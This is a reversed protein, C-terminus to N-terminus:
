SDQAERKLRNLRERNSKDTTSQITGVWRHPQNRDDRIPQNKGRPMRTEKFGRYILDEAEKTFSTPTHSGFRHDDGPARRMREPTVEFIAIHRVHEGPRHSPVELMAIPGGAIREMAKLSPVNPDRSRQGPHQENGDVHPAGADVASYITPEKETEVGERQMGWSFMGLKAAVNVVGRPFDYVHESEKGGVKASLATTNLYTATEWVDGLAVLDELSREGCPQAGPYAGPPLVKTAEPHAILPRKDLSIVGIPARPVRSGKAPMVVTALRHGANAEELWQDCIAERSKSHIAPMWDLASKPLANFAKKFLAPDRRIDVLDVVNKTLPQGAVVHDIEVTAANWAAEFDTSASTPARFQKGARAAEGADQKSPPATGSSGQFAPPTQPSADAAGSNGAGAPQQNGPGNPQEPENTGGVRMSM